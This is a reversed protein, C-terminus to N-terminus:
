LDRVFTSGTHRTDQLTFDPHKLCELSYPMSLDLEACLDTGDTHTNTDELDDSM